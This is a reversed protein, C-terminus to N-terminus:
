LKYSLYTTRREEGFMEAARLRETEVHVRVERRIELNEVVLFNWPQSFGVSGAQNAASLIRALTEAPIPNPLFSRMDRRRSITEYLGRRWADPLAHDTM